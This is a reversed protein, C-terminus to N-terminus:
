SGSKKAGTTSKAGAAPKSAPKATSAAAAKRQAEISSRFEKPVMAAKMGGGFDVLSAEGRARDRIRVPAAQSSQGIMWSQRTGDVEIIEKVVHTIPIATNIHVTRKEMYTEHITSDGRDESTSFGQRFRFVSVPFSGKVTTVSDAGLTDRALVPRDTTTRTKLRGKPLKMLQVDPQDTGKLGAVTKRVYYQMNEVGKPDKFADYSLLSALGQPAQGPYETHTEIWFCREGWFEEEGGILVTVTYDDKYGLDSSGTVHYKVWDGVKFDPPRDYDILGIANFSARGQPFAAHPQLTALVLASAAAIIRSCRHIDSVDQM